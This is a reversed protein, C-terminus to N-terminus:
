GRFSLPRAFFCFSLRIYTSLEVIEKEGGMVGRMGEFVEDSVAVDRTMADVYRQVMWLRGSLGGEGEVGRHGAKATRVTEVGEKSVGAKELLPAHHMWEFAAGNLAGVRCMALEMVDTPLTSRYRVATMFQLFGRAFSPSILLTRYLPGLGARGTGKILKELYAQHSPDTFTPPDPTYNLRM